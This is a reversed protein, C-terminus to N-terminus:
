LAPPNSDSILPNFHSDCISLLNYLFELCVHMCVYMSVDGWSRALFGQTNQLASNM